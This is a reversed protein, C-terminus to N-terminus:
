KKVLITKIKVKLSIQYIKNELALTRFFVYCPAVKFLKKYDSYLNKRLMFNTIFFLYTTASEMLQRSDALKRQSSEAWNATM